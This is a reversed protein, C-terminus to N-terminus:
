KSRGGIVNIIGDAVINGSNLGKVGGHHKPMPHALMVSAPDLAVMRGHKYALIYVTIIDNYGNRAMRQIKGEYEKGTNKSKGRVYDGEHIVRNTSSKARNSAGRDVKQQLDFSLPLIRYDCYPQGNSGTGGFMGMDTYGNGYSELLAKGIRRIDTSISKSKAIRMEADEHIFSYYGENIDARFGLMDAFMTINESLDSVREPTINRDFFERARETVMEKYKEKNM